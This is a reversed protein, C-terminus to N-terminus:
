EQTNPISNMVPGLADLLAQSGYANNMAIQILTVLFNNVIHQVEPLNINSRVLQEIENTPRPMDETKRQLELLKATTDRVQPAATDASAQDKVSELVQTLNKIVSIVDNALKAYEEAAPATAKNGYSIDAMSLPALAFLVTLILTRM